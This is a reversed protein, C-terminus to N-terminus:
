PGRGDEEAPGRLSYRVRRRDGKASSAVVRMGGDGKAGINLGSALELCCRTTLGRDIMSHYTEIHQPLNCAVVRRM